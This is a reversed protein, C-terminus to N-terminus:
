IFAGTACQSIRERSWLSTRPIARYVLTRLLDRQAAWPDATRNASQQAALPQYACRTTCSLFSRPAIREVQPLYRASCRLCHHPKGTCLRQGFASSHSRGAGVMPRGAFTCSRRRAYSSLQARSCARGCAASSISPKRLSARCSLPGEGRPGAVRLSGRSGSEAVPCASHHGSRHIAVRGGLDSASRHRNELASKGRASRQLHQLHNRERSHPTRCPEWRRGLEEPGIERFSEMLHAWHPRPTVGDASLEDYAAAYHLSTQYLDVTM